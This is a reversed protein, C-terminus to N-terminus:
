AKKLQELCVEIENQSFGKKLLRIKIQYNLDKEEYKNALKKSLKKVEKELANFNNPMSVEDLINLIDVIEYGVNLCYYLVYVKIKNQSDKKNSIVKKNIIKILKNHWIEENIESLKEKVMDKDFELAILKKEIKYPGNNTLNIQDNIFSNLYNNDNIYKNDELKDVTKNIDNQSYSLKTLYDRIEKKCRSRNSIYKIAQYYCNSGRNENIINLMNKENIDKSILLEYKLIIDDYLIIEKKNEFMIKYQNNKLKKFSKIKM